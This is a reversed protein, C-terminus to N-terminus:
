GRIVAEKLEKRRSVYTRKADVEVTKCRPCTRSYRNDKDRSWRPFKHGFITCIFKM